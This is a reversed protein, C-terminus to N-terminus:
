AAVNSFVSGAQWPSFAARHCFLDPEVGEVHVADAMNLMPHPRM